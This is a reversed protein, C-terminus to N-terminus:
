VVATERDVDGEDRQAVRPCPSRRYSKKGYRESHSLILHDRARTLGVYFLYSFTINKQIL